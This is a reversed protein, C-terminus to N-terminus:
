HAFITMAHQYEIDAYRHDIKRYNKEEKKEITDRSVHSSFGLSTQSDPFM